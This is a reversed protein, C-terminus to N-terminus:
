ETGEMASHKAKALHVPNKTDITVIEQGQPSFARLGMGHPSLHPWFSVM